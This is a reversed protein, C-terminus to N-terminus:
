GPVVLIKIHAEERRLLADLGRAVGDALPVTATILPEVRVRRDALLRIAEPVEDVYASSGIIEKEHAV